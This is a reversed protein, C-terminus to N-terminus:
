RVSAAVVPLLNKNPNNKLGAILGAGKQKEALMAQVKAPSLSYLATESSSFVASLGVLVVLATLISSPDM